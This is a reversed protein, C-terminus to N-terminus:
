QRRPHRFLYCKAGDVILSCLVVMRTPYTPTSLVAMVESALKMAGLAKSADNRQDESM